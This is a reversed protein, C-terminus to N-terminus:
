VGQANVELQVLTGTGLQSSVQLTSGVAQARERMDFLGFHGDMFSGTSVFGTGNDGVSLRVLTCQFELGVTISSARAHKLANAIAEQAIRLLNLEVRRELRVPSGRVEFEIKTQNRQNLLDVVERLAYVLDGNELLHCRMDWVSRRAELMGHRSMSRATELARRAVPVADMFCDAALDLQFIIGALDQELTDHLERAIRNREELIAGSRLKQRYLNVQDRLRGHLVIVWIFVAILVTLTGGIVWLAHRFNWWPPSQIVSVDQPSRILMVFSAPTHWVGGNQVLGIGVVNLTSRLPISLLGDSRANSALTASFTFGNEELIMSLGDPQQNRGLLTARASVLAGDFREFPPSIELSMPAPPSQHGIRQFVADEVIPKSEGMKPFGRVEVVDGAALSTNQQSQVQVGTGDEQMFFMKGLQQYTVVGRVSVRDGLPQDPSFRLLSGIPIDSVKGVISIFHLRPVYFILGTFQHAANSLSGCVGEITVESGEWSSADTQSSFIPVRVEFEGGHSVLSLNLAAEQWSSRDISAMRVVGRVKVWQSDMKGGMLEGVSYLRSKPLASTGLRRFSKELIVPAFGEGTVGEVEVFDGLHHEFSQARSGLVYVGATGDQIVFDPAPVDNTIVGRIKVPYGLKVQDPTLHRIESARTLTPLVTGAILSHSGFCWVSMVCLVAQPAISPLRSKIVKRM